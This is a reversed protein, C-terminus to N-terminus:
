FLAPTSLAIASSKFLRPVNKYICPRWQSRRSAQRRELQSLYTPSEVFRDSPLRYTAVRRWRGRRSARRRGPLSLYTPTMVCRDSPLRYTAVSEAGRRSALRRVALSLYTPTEVFRDSSLRYTAVSKAPPPQQGSPAGRAIPLNPHVCGIAPPKTHVAVTPDHTRPTSVTRGVGEEGGM